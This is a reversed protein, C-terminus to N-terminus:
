ATRPGIDRNTRRAVFPLITLIGGEVVLNLGALLVIIATSEILILAEWGDTNVSKSRELWAELLISIAGLGCIAGGVEWSLLNYASLVLPSFTLVGRLARWFTM